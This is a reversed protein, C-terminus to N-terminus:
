KGGRQIAGSRQCEPIPPFNPLTWDSYKKLRNKKVIKYVQLFTVSSESKHDCVTLPITNKEKGRAGEFM